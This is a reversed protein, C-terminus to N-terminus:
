ARARGARARRARASPRPPSPTRGAALLQEQRQWMPSTTRAHGDPHDYGLVHLTGHIVLRELEERVSGGFRRANARAVSPAIYIDGVVPSTKSRSGSRLAFSIVDTAGAHGLHARNLRAIRPTTVLAISVMADRVREAELVALAVARLRAKSVPARVGEAAVDVILTV